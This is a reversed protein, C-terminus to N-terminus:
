VRPTGLRPLQGSNLLLLGLLGFSRFFCLYGRGSGDLRLAGGYGYKDSSGVKWFNVNRLFPDQDFGFENLLIYWRDDNVGGSM